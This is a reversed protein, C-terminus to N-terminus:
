CVFKFRESFRRSESAACRSSGATPACIATALPLWDIWSYYQLNGVVVKGAAPKAVARFKQAPTGVFVRVLARHVLHLM